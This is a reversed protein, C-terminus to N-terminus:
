NLTKGTSNIFGGGRMIEEGFIDRTMNEFEEKASLKRKSLAGLYEPVKIVAPSNIIINNNNNNNNINNINNASNDEYSEKMADEDGVVLTSVFIKSKEGKETVTTTANEENKVGEEREAEEEFEVEEEEEEGTSGVSAEM